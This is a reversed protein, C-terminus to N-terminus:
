RYCKPSQLTTLEWGIVLGKEPDPCEFYFGEQQPYQSGFPFVDKVRSAIKVNEPNNIDIALLDSAQDAYLINDRVAVDNSGTIQIFGINQPNEPNRNDFVHIGKLRDVLLLYDNIVYIKGPDEIERPPLTKVEKEGETAYIPRYGEVEEVDFNPVNEWNNCALISLGFASITLLKLIKYKM